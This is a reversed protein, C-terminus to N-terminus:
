SNNTLIGNDQNVYHYLTHNQKISLNYFHLIFLDGIDDNDQMPVLPNSYLNDPCSLKEICKLGVAELAVHLGSMGDRESDPACYLFSGGEVIMSKVAPVLISLIKVDYVLDSGIIVDAREPPYSEMDKWNLKCVQVVGADGGKEGRDSKNASLIREQCYIGNQEPISAFVNDKTSDKSSNLQVNYAANKLAPDHIDTIYTLRAEGYRAAALGPLGCGAGLEIVVKDKILEKKVATWRALIISAPWVALGTSDDEPADDSGFPNDARTIPLERIMICDTNDSQDESLNMKHVVAHKEIDIDDDEEEVTGEKGKIPAM